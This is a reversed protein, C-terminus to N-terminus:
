ENETKVRFAVQEILKRITGDETYQKISVDDFRDSRFIGTLLMSIQLLSLKSYDTHPDNLLEPGEYWRM